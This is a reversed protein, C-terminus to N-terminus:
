AEPFYLITRSVIAMCYELRRPWSLAKPLLTSTINLVRTLSYSTKRSGAPHRCRHDLIYDSPLQPFNLLGFKDFTLHGM